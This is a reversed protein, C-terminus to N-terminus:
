PRRKGVELSDGTKHDTIQFRLFEHVAKLAEDNKTRIQIRGGRDMAEFKYNIENSLRKMVSVGPPVKDHIFMPAEFNGAPFMVSIHKLHMRIQDRSKTDKGDITEVQIAGGDEDLLFHHATAMHSFGMAHDGRENVRGHHQTAAEHQGFVLAAGLLGTLALRKGM